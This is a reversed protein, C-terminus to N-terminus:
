HLYVATQCGNGINEQLNNSLLNLQCPWQANKAESTPLTNQKGNRSHRSFTRFSSGVCKKRKPHSFVDTRDISTLVRSTYPSPRWDRMQFIKINGFWIKAYRSMSVSALPFYVHSESILIDVQRPRGLSIGGASNQFDFPVKYLIGDEAKAAGLLQRALNEAAVLRDRVTAIDKAIDQKEQESLPFPSKSVTISLLEVMRWGDDFMQFVAKGQGGQVAIRRSLPALDKYQWDFDVIRSSENKDGAIGTVSVSVEAPKNLVLYANGFGFMARKVASGESRITSSLNVVAGGQMQWWGLAIGQREANEQLLLNSKYEGFKSNKEILKAADQRSLDSRGCSALLLAIVILLLQSMHRAIM